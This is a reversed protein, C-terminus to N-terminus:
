MAGGSILYQLRYRGIQLRRIANAGAIDARELELNTARMRSAGALGRRAPKVSNIFTSITALGILKGDIVIRVCFYPDHEALVLRPKHPSIHVYTYERENFRHQEDSIFIQTDGIGLIYCDHSPSIVLSRRNRVCSDLIAALELESVATEDLDSYSYSGKSM